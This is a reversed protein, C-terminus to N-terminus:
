QRKMRQSPPMVLFFHFLHVNDVSFIWCCMLTKSSLAALNLKLANRLVSNLLWMRIWVSLVDATEAILLIPHTFDVSIFFSTCRVHSNMLVCFLQSVAVCIERTSKSSASLSVLFYSSLVSYISFRHSKWYTAFFSLTERMQISQFQPYSIIEWILFIFHLKFSIIFVLLEYTNM